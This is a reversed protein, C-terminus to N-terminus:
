FTDNRKLRFSLVAEATLLLSVGVSIFTYGDIWMWMGYGMAIVALAAVIVSNIRVAKGISKNTSFAYPVAWFLLIFNAIVTLPAAFNCMGWPQLESFYSTEIKSYIGPGGGNQAFPMGFPLLELIIAIIPLIMILLRKKM